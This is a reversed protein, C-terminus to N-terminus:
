HSTEVKRTIWTALKTVIEYSITNFHQALRTADEFLCVNEDDGEISMSDMSVRGLIERGDAIHVHSKGDYRFFGDGYGIDYTSVRMACPAEFVGGYGVRDGKELNRSSVKQAWLSMVPRLDYKGFALPLDTYGYSAIGVRAFDEEFDGEHRLLAASNCSHFRLNEFGYQCSLGRLTEKAHEFNEKQVFYATGVVDASSHHMMAGELRLGKEAILACAEQIENMMVGNRHMGTDIKLHIRTGKPMSALSELSHAAFVWKDHLEDSPTDVLILVNEFFPEVISAEHKNKVAAWKIGVAAALPAMELLGHGYANDKLVAMLKSIAGTKKALLELNHRYNNFNISIYAM